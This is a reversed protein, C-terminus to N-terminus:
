ASANATENFPAQDFNRMLLGLCRRRILINQLPFRMYRTSNITEILKEGPDPLFRTSFSRRIDIPVSFAMSMAHRGQGMADRGAQGLQPFAGHRHGHSRIGAAADRSEITKLQIKNIKPNQDDFKQPLSAM